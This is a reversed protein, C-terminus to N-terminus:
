SESVKFYPYWRHSNLIKPHVFTSPPAIMENHLKGVAYLVEHFYRSITEGSRRFGWGIIMFMQNHGVVHLFMVVQEEITSNISDRLLGKNRFLDCLQFFPVRRM